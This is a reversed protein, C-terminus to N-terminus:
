SGPCLQTVQGESGRRVTSITLYNGDPSFRPSYVKDMGEVDFIVAPSEFEGMKYLYVGDPRAVAVQTSDPSVDFGDNVGSIEGPLQVLRAANEITIPELEPFDSPTITQAHATFLSFILLLLPFPRHRRM